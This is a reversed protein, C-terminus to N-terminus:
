FVFSMENIRRQALDRFDSFAENDGPILKDFVSQAAANMRMPNLNDQIQNHRDQISDIKGQFQGSLRSAAQAWDKNAYPSEAIVRNTDDITKSVNALFGPTQNFLERGRDLFKRGKTVQGQKRRLLSQFKNSVAGGVKQLLKKGAHEGIKALNVKGGTLTSVGSNVTKFLDRATNIYNM